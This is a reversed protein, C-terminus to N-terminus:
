KRVFRVKAQGPNMNLLIALLLGNAIDTILDLHKILGMAITSHKMTRYRNNRDLSYSMKHTFCLGGIKGSKYRLRRSKLSMQLVQDSLM